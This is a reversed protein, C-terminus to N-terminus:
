VNGRMECAALTYNGCDCVRYEVAECTKQIWEGPEAEIPLLSAFNARDMGYGLGRGDMKVYAEKLSWLYRFQGARLRDEMRALLAFEEPHCVKKILSEKPHFKREVDIGVPATGVICAYATECHSLSFCIEPHAASYPKGHEDRRIDLQEFTYGTQERIAQGLLMWALIRERSKGWRQGEAWGDPLQLPLEKAQERLARDDIMVDSHAEDDATPESVHYERVYIRNDMVKKERIRQWLLKLKWSGRRGHFCETPWRVFYVM